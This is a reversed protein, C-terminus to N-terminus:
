RLTELFLSNVQYNWENVAIRQTRSNKGQFGCTCSVRVLGYGISVIMPTRGCTCKMIPDQSGTAKSIEAQIVAEKGPTGPYERTM